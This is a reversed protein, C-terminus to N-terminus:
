GNTEKAQQMFLADLDALEPSDQGWLRKRHVEKAAWKLAESRANRNEDREREAKRARWEWVKSDNRWADVQRKLYTIDARTLSQYQGGETGGAIVRERAEVQDALRTAEAMAEDREALLGAIVTVSFMGDPRGHANLHDIYARLYGEDAVNEWTTM